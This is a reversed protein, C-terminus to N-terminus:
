QFSRKFLDRIAEKGEHNLFRTGSGAINRSTITPLSPEWVQGDWHFWASQSQDFVWIPKYWRKALEVSWGTGGHVTGDPQITGVVFVQDSHSVIHWLVQVVKQLNDTRKWNRNLVNSVYSLSTSGITLEKDNLLTRGITRKQEHGEFTFNVERIGVSAAIEGFFAETGMTGGSFLTINEPSLVSRNSTPLMTQPQVLMSTNNSHIYVGLDSELIEFKHVANVSQETTIWVMCGFQVGLNIWARLADENWLTDLGDIIVVTPKFELLTKFLEIKESIDQVDCHQNLRSHVLRNQEISKRMEITEVMTDAVLLSELTHDYRKRVHQQPSKLSIHLVTDGRLLSHIGILTALTSKGLGPKSVVFGLGGIEGCFNPYLNSVPNSPFFESM